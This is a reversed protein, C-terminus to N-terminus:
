ALLILLVLSNPKPLTLDIRVAVLPAGNHESRTELSTIHLYKCTTLDAIWM